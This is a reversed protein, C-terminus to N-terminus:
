YKPDFGEFIVNDCHKKVKDFAEESRVCWAIVPLEKYKKVFRNPLNEAQYAIFNPESVKKNLLM